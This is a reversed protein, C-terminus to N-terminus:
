RVLPITESNFRLHSFVGGSHQNFTGFAGSALPPHGVLLDTVMKPLPRGNLQVEALRNGRVTLRITNEARPPGIYESALVAGHTREFPLDARYRRVVRQLFMRDGAFVLTLTEFEANDAADKRHGLFLGIPGFNLQHTTAAFDWDAAATEGIQLLGTSETSAELENTDARVAWRTFTGGRPWLLEKVAPAQAKQPPVAPAANAQEARNGRFQGAGFLGLAAALVVVAGVAVAAARRNRRPAAAPPNEASATALWAELDAALDAATAYRERVEKALCKLCIRELERPVADDISRPPRPERRFILERYEGPDTVRFLPRGTLLEYLVAGLSYIDARGDLLHTDGRVQEPPMYALTGAVQCRAAPQEDESVALGFDTLYASGSRDLLINAPKVDRHILGALHAAHLAGAVTAVVRAARDFPVRGAALRARLSEGEVFESVIYWGGAGEGVDYVQVVAPHRLSAAKRAESLFAAPPHGPDRGRRAPTKVAVHKQLVPDFAQWVEGFAGSGVVRLLRYRGVTPDAPTVHDTSNLDPEAVPPAFSTTSTFSSSVPLRDGTADPGSSGDSGYAWRVPDVRRAVEPDTRRLERFYRAAAPGDLQQLAHQAAAVRRNLDARM